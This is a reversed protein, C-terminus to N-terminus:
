CSTKPILIWLNGNTKIQVFIKAIKTVAEKKNQLFKHLTDQVEVKSKAFLNASCTCILEIM